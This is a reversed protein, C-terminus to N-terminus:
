ARALPLLQRRPLGTAGDPQAGPAPDALAVVALWLLVFFLSGGAFLWSEFLANTVAGIFLAVGFRGGKLAVKALASVVGLGVAIGVIGGEYLLQLYSNGIEVEGTGVGVGNVPAAGIRQRVQRWTNLRSDGTRIISGPNDDAVTAVDRLQSHAILIASVAIVPSMALITVWVSKRPLSMYALYLIELALAIGSARSGSRYVLFISLLVFLIAQRSNKVIIPLALVVFLGLSNPNGFLGASRLGRGILATPVFVTFAVCGFLIAISFAKLSQRLTAASIRQVALFIFTLALCMGGTWLITDSPAHSWLTSVAGYVLLIGLARVISRHYSRPEETADPRRTLALVLICGVVLYRPDVGPQGANTVTNGVQIPNRLFISLSFYYLALAGIVATHRWRAAILGAFVAAALGLPLMVNRATAFLGVVPLLVAAAIGVPLLGNFKAEATRDAIRV